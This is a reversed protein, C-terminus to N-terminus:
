RPAPSRPRGRGCRPRAAACWRRGAGACPSPAPAPARSPCPARRRCAARGAARRASPACPCTNGCPRARSRRCRSGGRSAHRRDGRRHQLLEVRRAHDLQAEEVHRLEGRARGAVVDMVAMAAIRPVLRADGAAARAARAGRDRRAHDIARQAGVGAARDAQRGRGAAHDAHLRGVAAHAAGAGHRARPAEVMDPREGAGHAVIGAHQADDGAVVGVIRRGALLRHGVVLRQELAAHRAEPDAERQGVPRRREIGLDTGRHLRGGVRQALEAGRDRWGLQGVEGREIAGGLHHHLALRGGHVPRPHLGVRGVGVLHARAHLRAEENRRRLVDVRQAQARM